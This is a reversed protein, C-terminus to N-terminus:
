KRLRRSVRKGPQLHLAVGPAGHMTLSDCLPWSRISPQILVFVLLVPRSPVTTSSSAPLMTLKVMLLMDGVFMSWFSDRVWRAMMMNLRRGKQHVVCTVVSCGKQKSGFIDISCCAAWTCVFPQDFKVWADGRKPWWMTSNNCRSTIIQILM